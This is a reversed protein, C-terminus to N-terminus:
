GASLSVAPLGSNRLAIRDYNVNYERLGAEFMERDQETGHGTDLRVALAKLFHFQGWLTVSDAEDLRAPLSVEMTAHLSRYYDRSQEGRARWPIKAADQPFERAFWEPEPESRALIPRGPATRSPVRVIELPVPTADIVEAQVPKPRVPVIAVQRSRRAKARQGLCRGKLLHRRRDAPRSFTTGCGRCIVKPGNYAM